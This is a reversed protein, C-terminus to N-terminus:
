NVYIQFIITSVKGPDTSQDLPQNAIQNSISQNIPENTQQNLLRNIPQNISQSIPENGTNIHPNTQNSNNTHQAAFSENTTEVNKDLTNDQNFIWNPLGGQFFFQCLIWVLELRFEFQNKIIFM